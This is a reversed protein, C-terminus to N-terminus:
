FLVGVELGLGISTDTDFSNASNGNVHFQYERDLLVSLYVRAFCHESFAQRIGLKLAVDTENVAQNGAPTARTRFWNSEYELSADAVTVNNGFVDYSITAGNKVGLFGRLQWQPLFKWNLEAMPIFTASDELRTYLMPGVALSLDKDFNYTPGAAVAIQAGDSLSAATESAFGGNVLSFVGWDKDFDHSYYVSAGLKQVNGFPANTGSFDYNLYTYSLGTSLHDDGWNMDDKGGISYRNSSMSGTAGSKLDASFQHEYLSIVTIGLGQPTTTNASAAPATQACLSGAGLVALVALTTLSQLLGARVPNNLYSM